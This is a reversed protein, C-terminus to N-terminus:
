EEKEEIVHAGPVNNTKLVINAHEVINNNNNDVVTPDLDRIENINTTKNSNKM